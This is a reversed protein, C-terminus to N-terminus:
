RGQARTAPRRHPGGALADGVFGPGEAGSAKLAQPRALSLRQARNVDQELM